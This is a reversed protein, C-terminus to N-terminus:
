LGNSEGWKRQNERVKVDEVKTAGPITIGQALRHRAQRIAQIWEFMM